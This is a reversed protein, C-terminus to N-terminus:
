GVQIRIVVKTGSPQNFEDVLDIIEFPVFNKNQNLNALREQTVNLATSKHYDTKQANTESAKKRGIGNDSITCELIDQHFWKFSVQIEGKKDMGKFGHILANEVFPQIM